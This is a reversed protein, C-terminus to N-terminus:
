SLGVDGHEPLQQPGGSDRCTASVRLGARWCVCLMGLIGASISAPVSEEGFCCVVPFVGFFGGVSFSSISTGVWSGRGVACAAEAQM